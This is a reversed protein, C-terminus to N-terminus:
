AMYTRCDRILRIDLSFASFSVYATSQADARTDNTIGSYQLCYVLNDTTSVLFALNFSVYFVAGANTNSGCVGHFSVNRMPHTAPNIAVQDPTVVYSSLQKWMTQAYDLSQQNGYARYSDLAALGWIRPSVTSDAITYHLLHTDTRLNM